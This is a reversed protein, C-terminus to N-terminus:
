RSIAVPSLYIFYLFSFYLRSKKDRMNQISSELKKLQEAEM